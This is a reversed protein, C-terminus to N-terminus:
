SAWFATPAASSKKLVNMAARKKFSAPWVPTLSPRQVARSRWWYIELLNKWLIGIAEAKLWLRDARWTQFGKWIPVSGQWRVPGSDFPFDRLFRVVRYRRQGFPISLEGCFGVM